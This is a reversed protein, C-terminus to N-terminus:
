PRGLPVFTESAGVGTWRVPRGDIVGSVDATTRLQLFAQDSGAARDRAADLPASALADWVRVDVRVHDSGNAADLTVAGPVMVARGRLVPGPHWGTYTTHRIELVGVFGDRGAGTPAWLFLAAPRVAEDSAGPGHLAGYLLAGNRGSAEGWEWTM